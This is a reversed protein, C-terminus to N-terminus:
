HKQSARTHADVVVDGGDGGGPQTWVAGDSSSQYSVGNDQAGGIIVNAVPDWAASHMEITGLARGSSSGGNFSGWANHVADTPHRLFFLGGDTANLLM